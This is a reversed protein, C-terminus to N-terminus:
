STYFLEFVGLIICMTTIWTGMGFYRTMTIIDKSWCMEQLPTLSDQFRKIYSKEQCGLHMLSLGLLIVSVVIFLKKQSHTLSTTFLVASFLAAYQIIDTVHDLWDGFSTVMDYKRAMNGDMCDFIYGVLIACAGFLFSGKYVLWAGYVGCVASAITLMNPTVGINRLYPNVFESFDILVNDIPNEFHRPIKRGDTNNM